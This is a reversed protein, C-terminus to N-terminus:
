EHATPNTKKNTPPPVRAWPITSMAEAERRIAATFALASHDADSSTKGSPSPYRSTADAAWNTKGPLHIIKFSWPLSRQKLRFLRTNTIEDLTRDGFIKVLPKHDTVVILLKCGLTFCRTQELGWVVALAEGEIAAYRQEASSLFRSGALTIQWGSPCCDPVESSCSCHQQLLFYGIGRTSWDLRLCTRKSADFIRVDDQIATVIALKSKEFADDLLLTWCFTQKPSLFPKFPAM